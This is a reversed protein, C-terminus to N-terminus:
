PSMFYLHNQCTGWVFQWSLNRSKLFRGWLQIGQKGDHGRGHALVTHSSAPLWDRKSTVVRQEASISCFSPLVGPNRNNTSLDPESPLEGQEEWVKVSKGVSQIFDGKVFKIHISSRPDIEQLSIALPHWVPMKIVYGPFPWPLQCRTEQLRLCPRYFTETGHFEGWLKAKVM